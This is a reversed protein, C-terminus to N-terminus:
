PRLEWWLDNKEWRDRMRRTADGPVDHISGFNNQCEIVFVDYGYRKAAKKYPAMEWNRSFTNSVIVDGKGEEMADHARNLCDHHAFELGDRRFEYEGDHMFYDDAEFMKGDGGWGDAYQHIAIALTSKGSGPLGRVLYLIYPAKEHSLM